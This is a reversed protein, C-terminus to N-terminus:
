CALAGSCRINISPLALNVSLFKTPKKYPTGLMCYDVANMFVPQHDMLQLMGDYSWLSSCYPNEVTIKCGHEAGFIALALLADTLRNAYELIGFDKESVGWALGRPCEVSRLKPYRAPSFTNCPVAVHMYRIDGRLIGARIEADLQPRLVDHSPSIRVDLGQTPIGRKCLESTLMSEGCCVEVAHVGALIM